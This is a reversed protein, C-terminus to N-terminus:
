DLWFQYISNRCHHYSCIFCTWLSTL